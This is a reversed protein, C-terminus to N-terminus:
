LKVASISRFGCATVEDTGNFDQQWKSSEQYGAIASGRGQFSDPRPQLVVSRAHDHHHDADTGSEPPGNSAYGLRCTKGSSEACSVLHDNTLQFRASGGLDGLSHHM